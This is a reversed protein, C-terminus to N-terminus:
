RAHDLRAPRGRQRWINLLMLGWLCSALSIWGHDSLPPLATKPVGPPPETNIAHWILCWYAFHWASIVLLAVGGVHLVARWGAYMLALGALTIVIAVPWPWAPVHAAPWLFVQGKLRDPGGAIFMVGDAASWAGCGLASARFYRQRTRNEARDAVIAQQERM